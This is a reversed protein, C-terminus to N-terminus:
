PKPRANPQLAELVRNAEPSIHQAFDSIAANVSPHTLLERSAVQGLINFSAEISSGGEYRVAEKTQPLCDVTLLRGFLAALAKNDSLRGADTFKSYAAIEPHMAMGAFMWRILLVKDNNSVSSVLCRTLADTYIGASAPASIFATVLLALTTLINLRM